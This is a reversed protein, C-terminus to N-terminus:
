LQVTSAACLKVTSLNKIIKIKKAPQGSHSRALGPLQSCSQGAWSWSFLQMVFTKWFFLYFFKLMLKNLFPFMKTGGKDTLQPLLRFGLQPVFEVNLVKMLHVNILHLSMNLVFSKWSTPIYWAFMYTWFSPSEHPPCIDLLSVYEVYLVKMLHDFLWAISIKLVLSKWSTTLLWAPSMKVNPVKMIHAIAYIVSKILLYRLSFYFINDNLFFLKCKKKILHHQFSSPGQANQFFLDVFPDAADTSLTKFQKNEREYVQKYTFSHSVISYVPHVYQCNHWGM